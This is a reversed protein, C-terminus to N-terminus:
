HEPSFGLGGLATSVINKVDQTTAAALAEGVAQEAERVSILQLAQRVRAALLPSMSLDRVGMGM